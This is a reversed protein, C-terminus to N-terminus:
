QDDTRNSQTIVNLWKQGETTFTLTTIGSPCIQNKINKNTAAKGKSQLYNGPNFWLQFNNTYSKATFNADAWHIFQYQIRQHIAYIVQFGILKLRKFKGNTDPLKLSIVIMINKIRSSKPLSSILKSKLPEKTNFIYKQLPRQYM